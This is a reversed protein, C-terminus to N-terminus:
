APKRARSKLLSDPFQQQLARLVAAGDLLLSIRFGAPLGDLTMRRRRGADTRTRWRGGKAM